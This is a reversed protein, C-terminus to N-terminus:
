SNSGTDCVIGSRVTQEDIWPAKGGSGQVYRQYIIKFNVPLGGFAIFGLDWTRLFVDLLRHSLKSRNVQLANRHDNSADRVARYLDVLPM